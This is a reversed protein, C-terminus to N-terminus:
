RWDLLQTEPNHEALWAANEAFYNPNMSLVHKVERTRLDAPAVIPHGTQPVFHGQKNPNVDVICDIIEHEPDILNAVTVGKAGAGWLAVNGKSHLDKVLAEKERRLQRENESFQEARSVLSRASDHNISPNSANSCEAEIWLYQGGFIHSVREVGFGAKEFALKLTSASFLSCHEYFFDWIVQNDLIWEVCPTEFFIRAKPSGSLAKRTSRLLSLPDQVHEIVHRCVIYDAGINSYKANYYDKVFSPNKYTKTGRNEYSPDFGIGQLKSRPNEVLKQLFQGKGCGVEIVLGEKVGQNEVLDSVLDDLYSDFFNSCDQTNDYNEGYSLKSMDFKRNFVFGCGECVIMNLEGTTAAIAANHDKHILNQHVPVSERTLFHRLNSSGCLPCTQLPPM